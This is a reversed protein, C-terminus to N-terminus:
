LVTPAAAGDMSLTAGTVYSARPSALWVVAAAIEEPEAIRGLPLRAVARAEAEELTGGALAAESKLGEAVRDTKTLGPNVGVVRVGQGAYAAGLGATALMLAANAAGGAVHVPSALKGGAGIVNVVVGAGRAAMGKIAPDIANVYSFYKADMAARYAAPSLADPPTRRAAGAANVLIDLPGLAAEARRLAGAAADADILDAGLGIAEGPLAAAAAEARAADRGVLAVRVGEQSLLRACALGIGRSGGTVLAARGALDLDM